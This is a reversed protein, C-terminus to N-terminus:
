IHNRFAFYLTVNVGIQQVVSTAPIATRIGSFTATPDSSDIWARTLTSGSGASNTVKTCPLVSRLLAKGPAMVEVECSTFDEISQISGLSGVNDFDLATFLKPPAALSGPPTLSEFVVSAMVITYQDFLARWTGGQPHSGANWIYGTETIATTSTTISTDLKVTDWVIMSAINRPVKSPVNLMSPPRISLDSKKTPQMGHVGGSKANRQVRRGQRGGVMTSPSAGSLAHKGALAAGILGLLPLLPSSLDAM